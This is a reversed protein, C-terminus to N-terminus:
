EKNLSEIPINERWGKAQTRDVGDVQRRKPKAIEKEDLMACLQTNLYHFIGRTIKCNTQIGFFFPNNIPSLITLGVDADFLTSLESAKKYLGSRRKSFTAYMNDQNKIRRAPISLRGRSQKHSQAVATCNFHISEDHKESFYPGFLFFEYIYLISRTGM